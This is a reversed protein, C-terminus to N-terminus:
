LKGEAYEKLYLYNNTLKGEKVITAREIVPSEDKRIEDLIYKILQDGFYSSADRPLENPLNSIAMIDVGDKQYPDIIKRSIPDVGYIPFEITSSGVNCPVGGETDSSIDAITKIRFDNNLMDEWKFLAPINKEWYTGNM